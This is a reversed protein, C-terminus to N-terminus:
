LISFTVSRFSQCKLSTDRNEDGIEENESTIVQPASSGSGRSTQRSNSSCRGSSASTSIRSSSRTSSSISDFDQAQPINAIYSPNKKAWTEPVQLNWTNSQGFQGIKIGTDTWLRSFLNM